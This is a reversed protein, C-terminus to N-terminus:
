QPTRETDHVSQERRPPPFPYGATLVRELRGDHGYIDSFFNVTGDAEVVVTTYFLYVPVPRQLDVRRDDPGETMARDIRARDWGNQGELVFAALARPDAVRICGHSFDRRSRVFLRKSPTDHLYVNDPNPFIFKVLGLSNRRGPRQRIRGNVVEMDNRELYGPDADAKPIIEQKAIGPPVSWYPRFVLYTMDAHLVPTMHARAAEGVVVNMTLPATGSGAQFGRLRFEPINVLIFRDPFRDPLWRLREMALQIQRVRTGPAVQMARTTARGIIADPELGHRRQFRRVAAALGEDYVLPDAAEAAPAPAPLDGLAQFWTRLAPLDPSLDDPRLKGVDPVPPLDIRDALARYQALAQQLGAFVPLSPDLRALRQRAGEGRALEGVVVPLDLRKPEVDYGFDVVRPHIRGIYSDSVYRMASVSLASDFLGIDEAAATGADLRQAEGRLREADYDAASLGRADAEFLATIVETAQATPRGGSTWLPAFRSTEYLGRLSVQYDPFRTWRLWPHEGAEIVRQIVPAAASDQARGPLAAAVIALVVAGRLWVSLDASVM